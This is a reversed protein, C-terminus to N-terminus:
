LSAHEKGEEQEKAKEGMHQKKQQQNVWKTQRSM